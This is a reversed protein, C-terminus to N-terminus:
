RLPAPTSGVSRPAVVGCLNQLGAPGGPGHREPVSAVRTAATLIVAGGSPRSPLRARLAPAPGGCRRPNSPPARRAGPPPPAKTRTPASASFLRSFRSLIFLGIGFGTGRGFSKALDLSVIVWIVINVIPILMLIIWWWDRGVIRLLVLINWIPIIAKWGAEGAKSFIMWWGAVVLAYIVLYVFWLM